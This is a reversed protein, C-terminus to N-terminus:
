LQAVFSHCNDKLLYAIMNTGLLSDIEVEERNQAKFIRPPSVEAVNITYFHMGLPLRRPKQSAAVMLNHPSLDWGIDVVHFVRPIKLRGSDFVDPSILGYFLYASFLDGKIVVEVQDPQDKLNETTITAEPLIRVMRFLREFAGRTGCKQVIGSVMFHIELDTLNLDLAGAITPELEGRMLNYKDAFLIGTEAALPDFLKKLTELKAEEGLGKVEGELGLEERRYAAEDSLVMWRPIEAMVRKRVDAAQTSLCTEFEQAANQSLITLAPRQYAGVLSPHAAYGACSPEATYVTKIAKVM